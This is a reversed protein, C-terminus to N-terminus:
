ANATRKKKWVQWRERGVFLPLSDAVTEDAMRAFQNGFLIQALSETLPFPPPEDEEGYFFFGILKGDDSLLEAMRRVYDPWKDPPLSCLFTREYIVDFKQSGFDHTFFDAVLVRDALAGLEDRARAVAAPSFDVALVEWGREAFARAEYGSGCGPILARGAPTAHALWAGFAQPVGHFDWPMQGARYRNDWFEKEASNM